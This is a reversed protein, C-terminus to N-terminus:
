RLLIMRKIETYNGAILRYFYVGSALNDAKFVVEHSGAQQKEDVLTKVKQGLLNYVKLTVPEDRPIQYQITTTPNFPNPYNQELSYNVPTTNQPNVSAILVSNQEFRLTNDGQGRGNLATLDAITLPIEKEEAPSWRTLYLEENREAGGNSEVAVNNKGRIIVPARGNKVVGNGVLNGDTTWVGIEDGNKFENSEVLLIASSGTNGYKMTYRAPTQENITKSNQLEGMLAIKPQAETGSPYYLETADNMFIKYGQGPEMYELSAVDYAPWYIDGNNNTILEMNQEISALATQVPMPEEVLYATNNWGRSLPVPTEEPLLYHGSITLTDTVHMFVSYGELSNWKGIENIGFEPWFVEGNNNSVINVNDVIDSFVVTLDNDRPEIYTSITNWGPQLIISQNGEPLIVISVEESAETSNDEFVAVARVTYHGPVGDGWIFTYPDSTVEGIKEGNAYFDIRSLEVDPASARANFKLETGEIFSQNNKPSFLTINTVERVNSVRIRDDSPVKSRSFDLGSHILTTNGAGYIERHIQTPNDQNDWFNLNFLTANNGDQIFIGANDNNYIEGSNITINGGIRAGVLNNNKSILHNIKTNGWLVISSEYPGTGPHDETIVTDCVASQIIANASRNGTLTIKGIERIEGDTINLGIGGNYRSTVQDIYIEKVAATRYGHLYNYEFVGDQLKAIARDNHNKMGAWNHHIYFNTMELYPGNSDIGYYGGGSSLNGTLLEDFGCNHAEYGNLKMQAPPRQGVGHHGINYALLNEVYVGPGSYNAFGSKQGNYVAINEFKLNEVMRYRDSGAYVSIIASSELEVRVEERNGNFALSRIVVNDIPINTGTHGISLVKEFQRNLNDALKLVSSRSEDVVRFFYNDPNTYAPSWSIDDRSLNDDLAISTLQSASVEQYEILGSLRLGNHAETLVINQNIQYIGPPIFCEGVTKAAYDAAAMIRIHNTSFPRDDGRAGFWLVNIHDYASYDRKWRGSGGTNPQIITGQNDAQTSNADWYFVGGGGDGAEYYGEVTIESSSGPSLARLQQITEVTNSQGTAAISFSIILILLATLQLPFRIFGRM